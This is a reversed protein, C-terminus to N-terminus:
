GKLPTNMLPLTVNELANLVPILNFSQFVFGIHRARWAALQSSSLTSLEQGAVTVRGADASDLGGVLNLITSKGSGSPGMLAVFDGDPIELDLGDLVHVTEGGRRYVKSVGEMTIM